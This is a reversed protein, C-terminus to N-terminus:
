GFITVYTMITINPLLVALAFGRQDIASHQYHSSSCYVCEVCQVSFVCVSFVEKVSFVSSVSFVSVSFTVTIAPVLVSFVVQLIRSLQSFLLHHHSVGSWPLACTKLGSGHVMSGTSSLKLAGLQVDPM